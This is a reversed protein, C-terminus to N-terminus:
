ITLILIGEGGGGRRERERGSRRIETHTHTNQHTISMKRNGFYFEAVERCLRIPIFSNYSTGFHLYFSSNTTRTFRNGAADTCFDKDMVLVLRGYQM